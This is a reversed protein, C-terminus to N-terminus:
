LIVLHDALSFLYKVHTSFIEISYLGNGLERGGEYHVISKM